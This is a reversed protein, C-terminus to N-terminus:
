QSPLAQSFTVLRQCPCQGRLASQNQRFTKRHNREPIRSNRSRGCNNRLIQIGRLAHDRLPDCHHRGTQHFKRFRPASSTEPEDAQFFRSGPFNRKSRNARSNVTEQEHCEGKLPAHNYSTHNELILLDIRLLLIKDCYKYITLLNIYKNALIIIFIDNIM